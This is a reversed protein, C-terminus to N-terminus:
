EWKLTKEEGDRGLLTENERGLSNGDNEEYQKRGIAFTNGEGAGRYIM